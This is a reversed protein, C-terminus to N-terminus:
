LRPAEGSSASEPKEEELFRVFEVEPVAPSFLYGQFYDCGLERLLEAQELTEVGEAVVNLRLSHAMAIIAATLAADDSDTVLGAVFSQDIKLRSIPFRRLYSLSSYGTGFDDLTLQIGLEHLGRFVDDTVDNNEMITSETIELELYASSLGSERLTGAVTEVFGPHRLQHGSLNVAVRIPRM